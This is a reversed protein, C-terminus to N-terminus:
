LLLRHRAISKFFFFFFFELLAAEKQGDTKYLVTIQIWNIFVSDRSFVPWIQTFAKIPRVNEILIMLTFHEASLNFCNMLKLTLISSKLVVLAAM